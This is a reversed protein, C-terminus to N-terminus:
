GFLFNLLKFVGYGLVVTLFFLMARFLHKSIVPEVQDFIDVRNFEQVKNDRIFTYNGLELNSIGGGFCRWVSLTPCTKGEEVRLIRYYQNEVPYVDTFSVGTVKSWLAGDSMMLNM